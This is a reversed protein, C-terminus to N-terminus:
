KGMSIKKRGKEIYVGKAPPNSLRRGSLDFIGNNSNDNAVQPAPLDHIVSTFDEATFICVGNEYCSVFRTYDNSVPPAEHKPPEIGTLQSGVGEVWIERWTDEGDEVTSLMGESGGEITKQFFILRRFDQGRVSITDICDHCFQIACWSTAQRLIFSKIRM